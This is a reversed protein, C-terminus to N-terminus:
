HDYDDVPSDEGTICTFCMNDTFASGIVWIDNGCSCKVGDQYDKLARLLADRIENEKLDSNNRLHLKVYKELKIPKFGM